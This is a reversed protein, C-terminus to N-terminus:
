PNDTLLQTMLRKRFRNFDDKGVLPKVDALLSAIEAPTVSPQAPARPPDRLFDIVMADLFEEYTQAAGTDMESSRARLRALDAAAQRLATLQVRSLGDANRLLRRYRDLRAHSTEHTLEGSLSETRLTLLDYSETWAKRGLRAFGSVQNTPTGAELAEPPTRFMGSDRDLHWTVLDTGVHELYPLLPVVLRGATGNASFVMSRLLRSTEGEFPVSLAYPNNIALTESVDSRLEYGVCEGVNVPTRTERALVTRAPETDPTPEDPSEGELASSDAADDHWYGLHRIRLTDVLGYWEDRPLGRWLGVLGRWSHWVDASGPFLESLDIEGCVLAVLTVLNATYVGQRTTIALRVPEYGPFSRNPSPFPAQRVLELLLERCAAQDDPRETFWAGLLEEAFEVVAARGVLAAFSTLAYLPGDDLTTTFYREKAQARAAVLDRLAGVVARAVLYEGFTAHLFEYSSRQTDQQARSEHIFFFRGVMRDAASLRAHMSGSVTPEPLPPALATLDANLEGADVSQRRRAFMALATVELRRLEDDVADRQGVADLHPDHKAIEREAFYRLLREYLQARSLDSDARQLANGDTDYLLLLLLL